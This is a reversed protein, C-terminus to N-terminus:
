RLQHGCSQGLRRFEKSSKRISTAFEQLPWVMSRLVQIPHSISLQLSLYSSLKSWSRSLCISPNAVLLEFLSVPIRLNRVSTHNSQTILQEYNKPNVQLVASSKPYLGDANAPSAALFSTLFLLLSSKQFM